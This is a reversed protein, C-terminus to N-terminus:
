KVQFEKATASINGDNEKLKTLVKGKFNHTYNNRKKDSNSSVMIKGEQYTFYLLCEYVPYLPM